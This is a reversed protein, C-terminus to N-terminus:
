EFFHELFERPRGDFEGWQLDGAVHQDGGTYYVITKGKWECLEVDSANKERLSASRLAHVMNEPNFTVVAREEPANEWAVLDRSRAIRTEYYGDILKELYLTYYYSGEYYLAPGGVYRDRGYFAGPVQTWSELDDSVFYKFTFKPWRTDDSEVLMVFRGEDRCVNVNFYSEEEGTMLVARAETWKVLDESSTMDIYKIGETEERDRRGSFIYVRGDWVFASGFAHGAFPVSVIEDAEVDRVRVEHEHHRYGAHSGPFDWHRQWNELRCFRGGFVFPTTEVLPSGLKGRLVLRNKWGSCPLSRGYRDKRRKSGGAEGGM